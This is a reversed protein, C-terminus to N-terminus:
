IGTYYHCMYNGQGTGDWGCLYACNPMLCWCSDLQLLSEMMLYFRFIEMELFLYHTPVQRSSDWILGGGERMKELSADLNVLVLLVELSRGRSLMVCRVAIFLKGGNKSQFLLCNIGSQNDHISHGIKENSSLSIFVSM